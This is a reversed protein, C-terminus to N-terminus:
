TSSDQFEMLRVAFFRSVRRALASIQHILTRRCKELLDHGLSQNTPARAFRQRHPPTQAM